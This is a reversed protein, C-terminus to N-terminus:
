EDIFKCTVTINTHMCVVNEFILKKKWRWWWNIWLDIIIIIIIITILSKFLDVVSLVFMCIFSHISHIFSYVFLGWKYIPLFLGNTMFTMKKQQQNSHFFIWCIVTPYFEKKKSMWRYKNERWFPNISFGSLDKKKFLFDM